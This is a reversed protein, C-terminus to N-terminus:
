LGLLARLRDANFGNGGADQSMEDLLRVLDGRRTPDVLSQRPTFGGLAPIQEDVWRREMTQIFEQAIAALEPEVDDAAPELDAGDRRDRIGRWLEDAGTTEVDILVADPAAAVLLSHMLDLREASNTDIVVQGDSFEFRGRMILEDANLAYELVLEGLEDDPDALAEIDVLEVLAARAAAADGVAFTARQLVLSDGERNRLLPLATLREIVAFLKSATFPEDLEDLLWARAHLPM